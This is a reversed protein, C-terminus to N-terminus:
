VETAEIMMIESVQVPNIGHSLIRDVLLFWLEGNYGNCTSVQKYQLVNKRLTYKQRRTSIGPRGGGCANMM